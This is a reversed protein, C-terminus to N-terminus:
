ANKKIKNQENNKKVYYKKIAKIVEYFPEESISLERVSYKGNIKLGSDEIEQLLLDISKEEDIKVTILSYFLFVLNNNKDLLTRDAINGLHFDNENNNNNEEKILKFSDIYDYFKLKM